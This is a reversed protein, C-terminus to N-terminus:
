GKEDGKLAYPTEHFDFVTSCVTCRNGHAKSDRVIHFLKKELEWCRLCYPDGVPTGTPGKKYYAAFRRVVEEKTALAETLRAIEQEKKALVDQFETAALKAEALAELLEAVKLKLEAQAITADVGVLAKAIDIAHKISAISASIATIDTM